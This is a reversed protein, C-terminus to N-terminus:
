FGIGPYNSQGIVVAVYLAIFWDYNVTIASKVLNSQNQPQKENASFKAHAIVTMQFSSQYM